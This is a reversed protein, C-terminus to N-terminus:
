LFDDWGQHDKVVNKNEKRARRVASIEGKVKKLKGQQQRRNKKTAEQRLRARIIEPAITVETQISREDEDASSVGDSKRDFQSDNVTESIDETAKEVDGSETSRPASGQIGSVSGEVAGLHDNSSDGEEGCSSSGQGEELKLSNELWRAVKSPKSTNNGEPEREEKVEPEREEEEEDSCSEEDTTEPDSLENIQDFDKALEKTFGSAGVSVDLDHDKPVDAFIPYLESEYHFRRRFFDRICQIDRDFYWEANHHTTSVIQPFDILIPAIDGKSSDSLLINFENFDGHILGYRALRVAMNMLQSYLDAPDPVEAVQCLPTGSIREMVVCNRNFDLPKPVPFHRDHLAKMFSYEKVAALRALYLWSMSKRHKHYDRKEKLKRFSTRGLKHFKLILEEGSSDTALYVDSEKGVGVQNGVSTVSDRSSLAKLALFDYGLYTLRYGDFKKTRQFAVLKHEALDRLKKHVGGTKLNSISAVLSAPVVEHNKMGMEVGALVRFDDKSLYRLLSVNFRGM